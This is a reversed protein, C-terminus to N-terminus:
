QLFSVKRAIDGRQAGRSQIPHQLVGGGGEGGMLALEQEEVWRSLHQPMVGGRGGKGDPYAPTCVRQVKDRDISWGLCVRM